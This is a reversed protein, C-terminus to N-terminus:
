IITTLVQRGRNSTILCQNRQWNVIDNWINDRTAKRTLVGHRFGESCQSKNYKQSTNECKVHYTNSVDRNSSARRVCGLYVQYVQRNTDELEIMKRLRAWMPAVSERRSVMKSTMSKVSWIKGEKKSYSNKWNANGCNEQWCTATCIAQWFFWQTM